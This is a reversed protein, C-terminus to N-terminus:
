WLWFFVDCIIFFTFEMIVEGERITLNVGKLIPQKSESIVASLDKVELLLKGSGGADTSSSVTSEVTVAAAIIRLSKSNRM